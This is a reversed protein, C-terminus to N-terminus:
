VLLALVTYAAAGLSFPVFLSQDAAPLEEKVINMVLGGALFGFLMGLELTGIDTLYGVSAGFLTAGSLVWRGHREFARDHHHILGGDSVIGHIAMALAYFFLNSLGPVEQHFLLYGVLASYLTFAGLHLLYGFSSSEPEDLNEAAFVEAGYFLVFGALGSVFVAQEAFFASGLSAGVHAASEALEPLLIVFVYAVSTGAGFSLVKRAQSSGDHPVLPSLLHVVALGVAFAATAVPFATRAEVVALLENM